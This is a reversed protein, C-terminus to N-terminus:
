KVGPLWPQSLPVRPRHGRGREAARGPKGVAVPSGDKGGLQAPFAVFAPRHDAGVCDHWTGLIFSLEEGQWLARGAETVKERARGGNWERGCVEESDVSYLSMHGCARQM